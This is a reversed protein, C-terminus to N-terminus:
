KTYKRFYLDLLWVNDSNFNDLDAACSIDAVVTWTENANVSTSLGKYHASFTFSGTREEYYCVLDENFTLGNKNIFYYLESVKNLNTQLTLRRTINVCGCKSLSTISPLPQLAVGATEAFIPSYEEILMEGSFEAEKIGLYNGIDTTGGIYITGGGRVFGTTRGNTDIGAFGSMVISEGKPDATYKYKSIVTKVPAEGYVIIFGSGTKFSDGLGGNMDCVVEEEVIYDVCYDLCEPLNCFDTIDVFKVTNPDYKGTAILLDEESKYVPKTYRKM